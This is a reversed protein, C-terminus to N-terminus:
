KVETKWLGHLNCYAYVFNVKEQVLLKVKAEELDHFYYIMGGHEMELYIWSIHHEETMPHLLSGVQIEMENNHFSVQPVHKEQSADSIGVPILEMKEGCCFVPVNYDEIKVIINGCHKCRYFKVKSEM